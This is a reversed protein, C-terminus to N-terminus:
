KVTMSDFSAVSVARDSAKAKYAVSNWFVISTSWSWMASRACAEIISKMSKATWQSWPV